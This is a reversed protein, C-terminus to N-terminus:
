PSRRRQSIRTVSISPVTDEMTDDVMTLTAMGSRSGANGAPGPLAWRTAALKMIAMVSDISSV